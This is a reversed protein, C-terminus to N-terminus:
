ANQRSGVPVYSRRARQRACERCDRAGRKTLRTNAADYAHGHPCHTPKPKQAYFARMAASMAAKAMESRRMGRHAQGIKQKHEPTLTTGSRLARSRFESRHMRGDAEKHHKNCLFSINNVGNNRTNGDKHHREAQSACGTIECAHGGPFLRRARQRGGSESVADGRWRPNAPGKQFSM